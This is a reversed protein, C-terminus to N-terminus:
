AWIDEVADQLINFWALSNRHPLSGCVRACRTQLVPKLEIAIPKSVINLKLIVDVFNLTPM